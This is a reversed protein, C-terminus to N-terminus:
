FYYNVGTITFLKTEDARAPTPALCAVGVVLLVLALAQWRM